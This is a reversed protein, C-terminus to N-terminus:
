SLPSTKNRGKKPLLKKSINGVAKGIPNNSKQREKVVKFNVPKM